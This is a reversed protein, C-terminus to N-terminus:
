GVFIDPDNVSYHFNFLRSRGKLLAKVHLTFDISAVEGFYTSRLTLNGCQWVALFDVGPLSLFCLM